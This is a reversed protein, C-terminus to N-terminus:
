PGLDAKVEIPIYSDSPFTQKDAGWTVEFEALYTGSTDTDTPQFTYSVRGNAADTVVATGSIELTGTDPALRMFFKVQTATTLDVAIQNADDNPDTSTLQARLVPRTDNRKIIFAM